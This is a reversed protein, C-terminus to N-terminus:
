SPFNILHINQEYQSETRFCKGFVPTPLISYLSKPSTPFSPDFTQFDSAAPITLVSQWLLFSYLPFALLFRNLYVMSRPQTIVWIDYPLIWNFWSFFFYWFGIFWFAVVVCLNLFYGLKVFSSIVYWISCVSKLLSEM